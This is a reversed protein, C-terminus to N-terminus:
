KMSFFILTIFFLDTNLSFSVLFIYFFVSFSIYVFFNIFQHYSNDSNVFQEYIRKKM